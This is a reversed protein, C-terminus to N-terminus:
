EILAAETVPIGHPAPPCKFRGKHFNCVIVSMASAFVERVDPCSHERGEGPSGGPPIEVENGEDRM